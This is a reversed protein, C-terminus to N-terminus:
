PQEVKDRRFGQGRLEPEDGRTKQRVDRLKAGTLRLAYVLQEKTLLRTSELLSAGGGAVSMAEFASGGDATGDRPTPALRKQRRQGSALRAGKEVRPGRGLNEVAAKEDKTGHDPVHPPAVAAVAAKEDKAVAAPPTVRAPAERTPQMEGAVAANKAVPTERARLLAAAGALAAVLLAAAAALAWPAFLRSRLTPAHAAQAHTELAPLNLARPEHALTSLLAELREVEADPEGTKDWLYESM